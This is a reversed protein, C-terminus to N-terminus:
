IFRSKIKRFEQKTIELYYVDKFKNKKIFHEKFYGSIKIGFELLVQGIHKSSIKEKYLLKNKLNYM